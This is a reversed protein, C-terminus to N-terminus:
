GTVQFLDDDSMARVAARENLVFVVLAKTEDSPKAAGCLGRRHAEATALSYQEDSITAGAIYGAQELVDAIASAKAYRNSQAPTM